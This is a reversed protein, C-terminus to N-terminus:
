FKREKGVIVKLIKPMVEIHASTGLFQKGDAIIPFQSESVVSLRRIPFVSEATRRRWASGQTSSIVAEFLGDQPDGAESEEDLKLNYLSVGASTPASVRYKGECELTIRGGPISVSSLFYQGNVRGIDLTQLVRKSLVDCAAVGEPIGLVRALRAPAAVPIYGLALKHKPLYDIIKKVTDDNGVAVVTKAGRKVEADITLAISKLPTLREIRGHIGLDTLRNEIESITRSYKGASLFGDYVYLYM